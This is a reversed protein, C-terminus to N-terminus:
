SLGNSEFYRKLILAAAYNDVPKSKKHLTGTEMMEERAEMTSHHESYFEVPKKSYIRLLKAFKRVALSQRTEKDEATLPLGLVFVDVKNLLAHKNIENIAFNVNKGPIVVLPTVLGNKGLALGINVTGYDIGIFTQAKGM